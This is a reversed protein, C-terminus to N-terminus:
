PAPDSRLGAGVGVSQRRLHARAFASRQEGSSLVPPGVATDAENLSGPGNGKNHAGGSYTCRSPRLGSSHAYTRSPSACLESRNRSPSSATAQDSDCRDRRQEAIRRLAAEQMTPDSELCRHTTGPDEHGLLMAIVTLDVGAQHPHMATTHLITHPSVRRHALSPCRSTAKLVARMQERTLYGLVPRDFRKSGIPRREGIQNRCPSVGRRGSRGFFLMRIIHIMRWHREATVAKGEPM